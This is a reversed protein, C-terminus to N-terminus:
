RHARGVGPAPRYFTAVSIELAKAVASVPVVGTDILHQARMIVRLRATKWQLEDERLDALLDLWAERETM